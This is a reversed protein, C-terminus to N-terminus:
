SQKQVKPVDNLNTYNPNASECWIQRSPKLSKREAMNGIRLTYNQTDHEATVYMPSGCNGCFSHARRNGSEAIKIYVKPTGSLLKFTNPNAPVSVRYASGTLAQCDNCHCIVVRAPDIEAEYVIQGCHCKGHVLM